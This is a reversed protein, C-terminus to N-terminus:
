PEPSETLWRLSVPPGETLRAPEGTVAAMGGELCSGLRGFVASPAAPRSTADSPSAGGSSFGSFFLCIARLRRWRRDIAVSWGFSVGEPLPRRPVAAVAAEVERRAEIVRALHVVGDDRLGDDFM